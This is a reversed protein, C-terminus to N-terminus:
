LFKVNDIVKEENVPVQHGEKSICNLVDIKGSALCTKNFRHNDIWWSDIAHHNGDSDVCEMKFQTGDLESEKRVGHIAVTGNEYKECTVIYGNIEKSEGIKIQEENEGICAIFKQQGGRVCEFLFAKERWHEGQEHEGCKANPNVGRHLVVRGRYDQTCNWESNEEIFSSNVPVTAGSPTQCAIIEIKWSGDGPMNCKMLFADKEIM